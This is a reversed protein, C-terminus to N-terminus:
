GRRELIAIRVSLNRVECAMSEVLFALDSTVRLPKEAMSFNGYVRVLDDVSAKIEAARKVLFDQQTM